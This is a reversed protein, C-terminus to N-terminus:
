GLPQRRTARPMHGIDQRRGRIERELMTLRRLIMSGHAGEDRRRQQLISLSVNQAELLARIGTLAELV